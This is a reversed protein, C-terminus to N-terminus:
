ALVGLRGLQLVMEEGIASARREAAERLPGPGDIARGDIRATQGVAKLRLWAAEFDGDLLFLLALRDQPPLLVQTGAVPSAFPIPGSSEIEEELVLRNLKSALKPREGPPSAYPRPLLHVLKLAALRQVVVAGEDTLASLGSMVEVLPAAQGDIWDLVFDYAPTNLDIGVRRALGRRQERLAGRTLRDVWMAPPDPPAASQERMIVDMRSHTNRIADMLMERGIPGVRDLDARLVDPASLQLDNLELQANAVFALGFATAEDAADRASLSAGQANLVEHAMGRPDQAELQAFWADAQPNIRFFRAKATRLRGVIACGQRYRELSDGPLDRASERILAYLADVQANGPLAAYHLFVAGLDTLHEGLFRMCAKRLSPPLWSYIGSLGAFDLRPLALRPLDEFSAEHFTVNDLGARAALARAARIHEPNLDVGHFEADPYCDALICLTLGAGCGLDVYTFPQDVRPASRGGLWAAQALHAPSQFAGFASPYVVDTTYATVSDAM